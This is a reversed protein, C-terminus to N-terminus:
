TAMYFAVYGSLYVYKFYSTASLLVNVIMAFFFVLAAVSGYRVLPTGVIAENNPVVGQLHFAHQFMNGLPTLANTVVGVGSALVLFGAFTRITGKMVDTASKRQLILGILSILAVIVSHRRFHGFGTVVDAAEEWDAVGKRYMVTGEAFRQDLM